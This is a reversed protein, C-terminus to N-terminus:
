LHEMRSHLLKAMEDFQHMCSKIFPEDVIKYLDDESIIDTQDVKYTQEFMGNEIKILYRNNWQFITIKCTKHPIEAVIRM